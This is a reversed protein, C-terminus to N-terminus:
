SSWRLLLKRALGARHTLRSEILPTLRRDFFSNSFFCDAITAMAFDVDDFSLSHSSRAAARCRATFMVLSISVMLMKYGSVFSLRNVPPGFFDNAHLQIRLFRRLMDDAEAPLASSVALADAAKVQERWAPAPHNRRRAADSSTTAGASGPPTAAEADSGSPSGRHDHAHDHAHADAPRWRMGWLNGNLLRMWRRWGRFRHVFRSFPSHSAYYMDARSRLRVTLRAWFLMDGLGLRDPLFDESRIREVIQEPPVPAKGGVMGAAAVQLQAVLREGAILARWVPLSTDALISDILAGTELIADWSATRGPALRVEEMGGPVHTNIQSRQVFRAIAPGQSAVPRGVNRRVTPCSFSLGVMTGAPTVTFRYPFQQCALPKAHAGLQEHIVCLMQDPDHFPCRGDAPELNFTPRGPFRTGEAFPNQTVLHPLRPGWDRAGIRQQEDRNLPIEKFRCCEGSHQCTFSQIPPLILTRHDIKQTDATQVRTVVAAGADRGSPSVPPTSAPTPDALDAITGVSLAVDSVGPGPNAARPPLDPLVPQDRRTGGNTHAAPLMRRTSAVNRVDPPAFPLLADIAAAATAYRDDPHRAMMKLVVAELGEPLD